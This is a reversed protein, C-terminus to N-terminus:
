GQMQKIYVMWTKAQNASSEIVSAKGMSVLAERVSGANFQSVGRILLVAGKQKETLEKVYAPSLLSGTISIADVWLEADMQYNALLVGDKVQNFNVFLGTLAQRANAMERAQVWAQMILRSVKQTSELRNGEVASTLLTAVEYPAGESAMLIGLNFMQAQKTLYGQGFSVNSVNAAIRYQEISQHLGIKQNWYDAKEPFNLILENTYKLAKNIDNLKYSAAFANVLWSENPIKALQCAREIYPLGKDFEDISFYAMALLAMVNPSVEKKSVSIRDELITISNKFQGQSFYMFALSMGIQGKTVDDLDPLTYAKNLYKLAVLPEGKSENLQALLQLTLASGLVNGKLDSELEILSLEIELYDSNVKVELLQQQFDNLANYIRPSIAAQLNISLSLLFIFPIFIACRKFM